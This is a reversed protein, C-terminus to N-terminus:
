RRWATISTTSRASSSTCSGSGARAGRNYFNVERNDLHPRYLKELRNWETNREAPTWEPHLYVSEQFHDVQCGYPIFTMASEAHFLEYKDTDERFFLHHWPATM